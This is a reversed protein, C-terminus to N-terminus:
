ESPTVSALEATLDRVGHVLEELREASAPLSGGLAAAGLDLLRSEIRLHGLFKQLKSSDHSM